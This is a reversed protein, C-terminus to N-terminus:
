IIPYKISISLLQVSDDKGKYIKSISDIVREANTLLTLKEKYRTFDREMTKSYDKSEHGISIQAKGDMQVGRTIAYKGISMSNSNSSPHTSSNGMLIDYREDDSLSEVGSKDSHTIDVGISWEFKPYVIIDTNVTLYPPLIARNSGPIALPYEKVTIPEGMCEGVQLYYMTKNVNKMGDLVIDSLFTIIDLEPFTEQAYKALKSSGEDSGTDGFTTLMLMDKDSLYKLTDNTSGKKLQTLHYSNYIVGAPCDPNESICTKEILTVTITIGKAESDHLYITQIPEGQKYSYQKGDADINVMHTCTDPNKCNCTPSGATTSTM